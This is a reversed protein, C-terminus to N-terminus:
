SIAAATRPGHRDGRHRDGDPRKVCRVTISGGVLTYKTANDILNAFVQTLRVADGDIWVPHDPMEFTLRQAQRETIDHFTDVVQQLLEVLDLRERRIDLKGSTIRSADLLDDVLRALQRSQRRLVDVARRAHSTDM